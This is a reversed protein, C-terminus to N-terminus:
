LLADASKWDAQSPADADEGTTDAKKGRYLALGRELHKIPASPEWACLEPLPLAPWNNQAESPGQRTTVEPMTRTGSLGASVSFTKWGTFNVPRVPMTTSVSRSPPVFRQNTRSRACAESTEGCQRTTNEDSQFMDRFDAWRMAGQRLLGDRWSVRFFRGDQEHRLCVSKENPSQRAFNHGAGGRM